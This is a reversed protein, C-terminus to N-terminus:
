RGAREARRAAPDSLRRLTLCKGAPVGLDGLEVVRQEPRDFTAV